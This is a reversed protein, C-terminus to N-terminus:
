FFIGGYSAISITACKVDIIWYKGQALLFSAMEVLLLKKTYKSNCVHLHVSHGASFETEDHQVDDTEAEGEEAVQEKPQDDFVNASSAAYNVLMEEAAKKKRGGRKSCDGCKKAQHQREQLM